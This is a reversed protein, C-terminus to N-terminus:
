WLAYLNGDESGFYVTPGAVVPSSVIGGAKFRWKEKGTRSDLAYLNGSEGFHRAEYDGFYVLSGALAPSSFVNKETGFRWKEKGTRVDVAQLFRGDSSGAYVIYDHVAPSTIVWSGDHSFRWRYRGTAEDVAHLHADRSGFYVVGDQVAPSSEVELNGGTLCSYTWKPKGTASDLAYLHGDFSGVYVRGDAVAPSSRVPGQTQFRWRKKGNHADLAYVAGDYGGFYVFGKTVAPSSYYLDWPDNILSEQKEALRDFFDTPVDKWRYHAQGDETEFRWREKGNEANLAYFIGSSDAFYVTDDAIAASCRIPAKATFKWRLKGTQQSVVYFTGDYSGFYILGGSVSPSATIKGGTKFKWRIGHLAPVGPGDYIGTRALGGRFTASLTPATSVFGRSTFGTTLSLLALAPLFISLSM